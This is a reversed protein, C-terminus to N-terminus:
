LASLLVDACIIYIYLILELLFFFFLSSIQLIQNISNGSSNEHNLITNLTKMICDFRLLRFRKPVM